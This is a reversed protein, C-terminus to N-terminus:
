AWGRRYVCWRRDPTFPHYYDKGEGTVTLKEESKVVKGKENKIVLKYDTGVIPFKLEEGAKGQWKTIFPRGAGGQAFGSAVSGLSLLVVLVAALVVKFVQRMIVVCNLLIHLM